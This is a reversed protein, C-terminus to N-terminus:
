TRTSDLLLRSGRDYTLYNWAWNVFCTPATASGWSSSSTSGSGCRWGIFGHFRSGTPSSPSRKTAVSRPWRARTTIASRRLRDPRGTARRDPAAVHRARRSRRNPSRRSRSARTSPRHRRHRVRQSARRDVPRRGGSDARRPRARRRAHRRCSQRDRRRGLHDHRGPYTTRRRARSRRGRCSGRRCRGRGHDPSTAIRGRGPGVAIPHFPGLVRDAAEILTIPILAADLDPFDKRMVKDILERLGGAM